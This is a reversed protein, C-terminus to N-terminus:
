ISTGPLKRLPLNLLWRIYSTDPIYPFNILAPRYQGPNACDTAGIEGNLPRLFEECLPADLSINSSM